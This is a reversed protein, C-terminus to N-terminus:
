PQAVRRHARFARSMKAAQTETFTVMCADDSYDMFNDVPDLGPFADGACTDRLRPCGAAPAGESPTDAVGDGRTGCGGHFTHLLGLWHGVEHVVTDGLSFPGDAYGRLTRYQVVVGDGAPDEDYDQPFTAWGLLGAAPDALYLNLAGRDGKRLAQKAAREAPSRPLMAAWAPDVTRDVGALYFSFITETADDRQGGAFADNLVAIQHAIDGSTVFGPDKTRALVHVYVPVRIPEPARREAEGSALRAAEAREVAALEKATPARTACRRGTTQAVLAASAAEIAAEAELAPDPATPAEPPPAGCSAVLLAATLRLPRISRPM